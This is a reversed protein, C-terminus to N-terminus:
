NGIRAFGEGRGGTFSSTDKITFGEKILTPYIQIMINALESSWAHGIMVAYGKNRAISKGINISEMIARREDVNDLFVDRQMIVFGNEIAVKKCVSHHTTMSDIFFLNNDYLYKLIIRMIRKDATVASGMHNNVGRVGPISNITHRLIATIEEEEMGLMIAYPGPDLGNLAEMPQHLIVNKGRKLALEASKKSYPLGPLVAITIDGPFDLFPRLQEMSHGADDIIFYLIKSEKKPAIIKPAIVAKSSVQPSVINASKEINLLTDSETKKYPSKYAGTDEKTLFKQDEDQWERQMALQNDQSTVPTIYILIIILFATLFLLGIIFLKIRLEIKSL